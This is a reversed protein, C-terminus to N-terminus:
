PRGGSNTPPVAKIPFTTTNPTGDHGTTNDHCTVTVTETQGVSSEDKPAVYTASQSDSGSSTFTVKNSPFSGYSASFTLTINDGNKASVIASISRTEGDNYVEEVGGVSQVKCYQESPPTTTTQTTTVTQTTTIPPPPPTTTTVTVAPGCNISAAVHQQFQVLGTGYINSSVNGKAKVFATLAIKGSVSTSAQAHGCKDQVYVSASAHIPIVYNVFSRVLLVQGTVVHSPPRTFRILNGCNNPGVKRWVGGIKCATIRKTDWFWHIVGYADRYSNWYGHIKTGSGLQMCNGAAKAKAIEKKSVGKAMVYAGINLRATEMSSATASKGAVTAQTGSFCTTTKVGHADTTTTCKPAVVPALAVCKQTKQDKATGTPCLACKGKKGSFVYNGSCSPAPSNDSKLAITDMLVSAANTAVNTVNQVSSASATSAAYGCSTLMCLVVGWLTITRRSKTKSM